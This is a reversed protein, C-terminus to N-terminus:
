WRVAQVAVDRAMPPGVVCSGAVGRPAKHIGIPGGGGGAPCVIVDPGRWGLQEAIELGITKKGELRYPEKLTSVDQYGPREAAAAAILRGADNILGDVLYPEAGAAACEARTIAPASGGM